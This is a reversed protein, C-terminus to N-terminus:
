WSWLCGVDLDFIEIVQRVRYERELNRLTVIDVVIVISAVVVVIVWLLLISNDESGFELM